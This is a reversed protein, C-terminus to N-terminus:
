GGAPAGLTAARAAERRRLQRIILVSGAHRLPYHLACLMIAVPASCLAAVGFLLLCAVSSITNGILVHQSNTDKNIAYAQTYIADVMGVGYSLFLIVTVAQAGKFKSMFPLYHVAGLFVASLCAGFITFAVFVWLLVRGGPMRDVFRRYYIYLAPKLANYIFRGTTFGLAYIGLTDKGFMKGVIIKDVNELTGPLFNGLSITRAERAPPSFLLTRWQTFLIKLDIFHGVALSFFVVHFAAMIAFQIMVARVLPVGYHLMALLAILATGYKLAETFFMLLFWSRVQYLSQYSDTPYFFLTIAAIWVVEVPMFPHHIANGVLYCLTVVVLTGVSFTVRNAFLAITAQHNDDAISRVFVKSTEYISTLGLLSFYSFLLRYEGNDAASRFYVLYLTAIYNVAGPMSSALIAFPGHKLFHTLADRQPVRALLAGLRSPRAETM